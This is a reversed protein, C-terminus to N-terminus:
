GDSAFTESIDPWQREIDNKFALVTLLLLAVLGVLAAAQRVKVSLKRRTVAEILFIMLHGGDLLPIPLLNILGLNISVFAMVALYDRTSERGAQGAVEFVTLPGGITGVSLKGQLLRVVATVTVEVLEWTSAFAKSAAHVVVHPNDIPAERVTPVWNRMGVAYRDYPQGHQNVGREHRLRFTGNKIEGGRRWRLRHEQDQGRQLADIFQTWMKVPEGNLSLIRDGPLLGMRHEPSRAFVHSVYLDAPELGARATAPGDGVDPTLTAVHPEYVDLEVFGGLANEVRRPRLYTLPVLTGRNGELARELDVWRDINKGGVAVVVDFPRMRASAAPSTPSTVGVVPAPHLPSIGVRGVEDVLDLEYPERPVLTPVPTISIGETEGQREVVFSLSRGPNAAVISTVEDFSDVTEGDISLIRDGPELRGDAPRDPFVIGVVPPQVLGDGLFVIFFLLLPFILNTAPGASVIVVRKWLPLHNFARGDDEERIVDSPHEGLMKVYGGFPLAAIVYETEGRRFGAIRPGFGLSFRLVKVGFVKAWTFHGLEHVFILVGVLVIAYLLDSLFGM